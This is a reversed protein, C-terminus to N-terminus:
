TEVSQQRNNFAESCVEVVDVKVEEGLWIVKCLDVFIPCLFWPSQDSTASWSNTLFQRVGKRSHAEVYHKYWPALLSQLHNSLLQRFPCFAQQNLTIEKSLPCIELSVFPFDLSGNKLLDLLIRFKIEAHYHVICSHVSTSIEPVNRNIIDSLHTNHVCVWISKESM